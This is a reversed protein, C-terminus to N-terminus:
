AGQERRTEKGNRRIIEELEEIFAARNEPTFFVHSRNESFRLHVRQGIGVGSFYFELLDCEDYSKFIWLYMVGIGDGNLSIDYISYKLYYWIGFPVILKFIFPLVVLSCLMM